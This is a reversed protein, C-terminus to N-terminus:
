YHKLYLLFFIQFLIIVPVGLRFKLHQTKHRWFQMGIIAGIGGGFFVILLLTSEPVRWMGHIACYKDWGYLCFAIVNLCLLLYLLLSPDLFFSM